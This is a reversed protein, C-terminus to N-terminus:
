ELGQGDMLIMADMADMLYRRFDNSMTPRKPIKVILAKKMGMIKVIAVRTGMITKGIGGISAIRAFFSVIM